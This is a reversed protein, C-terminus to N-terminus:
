ANHEPTKSTPSKNIPSEAGTHAPTNALAPASRWYSHLPNRSSDEDNILLQFGLVLTFLTAIPQALLWPTEHYYPFLEVIMLGLEPSPPKLGVYVFGVSAMAIISTSAGFAALSLVDKKIAPWIHTKFLYGEGFGILMDCELAPSDIITLTSARVLRFYEVALVISIALYLMIFSGPVIAAFLLVLVLGPLALLTNATFNLLTDVWGKRWAAIVGAAVGIISSSFVCLAALSLSIRLGESVRALMDRGYHDTGLFHQANPPQLIANLNQKNGDQGLLIPEGLSILVLLGLLSIGIIKTVSFSKM